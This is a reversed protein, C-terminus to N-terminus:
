YEPKNSKYRMGYDKMHFIFDKNMTKTLDNNHDGNWIKLISHAGKTTMSIGNIDTDDDTMMCCAMHAGMNGLREVAIEEPVKFSCFGGNRNLPHEWTPEVDNKMLFIHYSRIVNRSLGNFIKWFDEITSIECIRIYSGIDWEPNNADHFWMVFTNDNAFSIDM